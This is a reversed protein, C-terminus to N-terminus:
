MSSDSVGAARPEIAIMVNGGRSVQNMDRIPRPTHDPSHLDVRQGSDVDMDVDLGVTM